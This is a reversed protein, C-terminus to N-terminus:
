DTMVVVKRNAAIVLTDLFVIKSYQFHDELPDISPTLLLTHIPSLEVVVQSEKGQSFRPDIMRKVLIPTSQLDEVPLRTRSFRECPKSPARMDIFSISNLRYSYSIHTRGVIRLRLVCVSRGQFPTAM